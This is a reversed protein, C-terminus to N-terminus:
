NEPTHRLVEVLSPLLDGPADLATLRAPLGRQPLDTLLRAQHWGTEVRRVLRLDEILVPLVADVHDRDEDTEDLAVWRHQERPVLVVREAPDRGLRRRLEQRERNLNRRDLPELRSEHTVLRGVKKADRESLPGAM